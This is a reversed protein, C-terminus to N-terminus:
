YNKSWQSNGTVYHIICKETVCTNVQQRRKAAQTIRTYIYNNANLLNYLQKCQMGNLLNM